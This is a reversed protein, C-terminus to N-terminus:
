EGNVSYAGGSAGNGDVLIESRAGIHGHSELGLQHIVTETDDDGDPGILDSEGGYIGGIIAVIHTHSLILSEPVIGEQILQEQIVVLHSM